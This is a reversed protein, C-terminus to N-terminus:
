RGATTNTSACFSTSAVPNSGASVGAVRRQGAAVREGALRGSHAFAKRTPQGCGLGAPGRPGVDHHDAGADGPQRGRQADVGGVPAQLEQDDGLVDEVGAGGLPRLAADRRREARPVGGLLVQTSVRTAPAPAHSTSATRASTVSPGSATRSSIARPVSNSWWSPSSESVRSPPWWRSRIACAPPSAVPASIWRESIAAISRAGSISTM